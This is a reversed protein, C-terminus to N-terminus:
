TDHSGRQVSSLPPVSLTSLMTLDKTECITHKSQVVMVFCLFLYTNIQSVGQLSFTGHGQPQFPSNRLQGQPALFPLRQETIIM